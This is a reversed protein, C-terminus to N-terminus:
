QGTLFRSVISDPQCKGPMLCTEVAEGDRVLNLEFGEWDGSITGKSHSKYVARAKRENHSSHVCGVHEVIVEWVSSRKAM